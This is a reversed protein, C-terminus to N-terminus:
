KKMHTQIHKELVIRYFAKYSCLEVPCLYLPQKGCEYRLHRTLSKKRLYKRNCALCHYKETDQVQNTKTRGKFGPVMQYQDASLGSLQMQAAGLLSNAWSPLYQHSHIDRGMLIKDNDDTINLTEDTSRVLLAGCTGDQADRHQGGVADQAAMFAENQEREMQWQAYGQSSGEGGHSPGAQDLDDLLEEEDLTLDEVNEDQGDDYENKPEIMLESQNISKSDTGEAIIATSQSQHRKAQPAEDMDDSDPEGQGDGQETGSREDEDTHHVQQQQSQQQQQQSQQQSQQHQHKVLQLKLAEAVQQQQVSDTKKLAVAAAAAVSAPTALVNASNSPATSSSSLSTATNNSTPVGAVTSSSTLALAQSQLSTHMSHSSSNSHQDHNDILNNNDVSRRRIKKRKRSTPSASGERSGSVDSDLLEPKLPRKNEITLGSAKNAPVPPPLTKTASTEGHPPKSQQSPAASSSGRNDSLGKIQLSEAAKLLAALQDQSINVEGRYMYDMMARLEQFKVDKLIFIPHKDYQQSLLAAFYPSCASLVVKHAKLFKGEAALTCDVLTGNELLTDFVSILTSQHNNWRLCFQQDDDM